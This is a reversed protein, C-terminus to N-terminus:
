ISLLLSDAHSKLGPAHARYAECWPVPSCVLPVSSKGFEAPASQLTTHPARSFLQRQPTILLAEKRKSAVSAMSCHLLGGTLHQQVWNTKYINTKQATKSVPLLTEKLKAPNKYGKHVTCFARALLLVESFDVLHFSKLNEKGGLTSHTDKSLLGPMGRSTPKFTFCGGM